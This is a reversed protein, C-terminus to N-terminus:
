ATAQTLEVSQKKNRKTALSHLHLGSLTLAIGTISGILALTGFWFLGVLTLTEKKVDKYHSVNDVYSAMRYVQNSLALTNTEIEIVRIDYRFKNNAQRIENIYQKESSFATDIEDLKNDLNQLASKKEKILRAERIALNKNSASVAQNYSRTLSSIEDEKQKIIDDKLSLLDSYYDDLFEVSEFDTKNQKGTITKDNINSLQEEVYRIKEDYDKRVSDSTFFNADDLAKQKEITLTSLQDLLRTREKQVMDVSGQSRELSSKFREEKKLSLERLLESKELKLKTLENRAANLSRRLEPVNKSLRANQAVLNAHQQRYNKDVTEKDTSIEQTKVEYDQLAIQINEENNKIQNEIKSIEIENLNIQNNISSFAREFGNLLTEFTILCLFCLMLLYMIFSKKSHWLGIVFPIKTLEVLSIMVFPASLTFTGILNDGNLVLSISICLGIFVVILEVFWAIKRLFRSHKHLNNLDNDLHSENINSM